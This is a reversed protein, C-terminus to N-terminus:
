NSAKYSNRLKCQCNSVHTKNAILFLFMKKAPPASLDAAVADRGCLGMVSAASPVTSGQRCGPLLKSRGTRISVETYSGRIKTSRALGEM